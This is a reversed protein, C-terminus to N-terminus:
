RGSAKGCLLNFGGHPAPSHNSTSKAAAKSAKEVVKCVTAVAV